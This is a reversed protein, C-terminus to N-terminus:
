ATPQVLNNVSAIYQTTAVLATVRALFDQREALLSGSPIVSKGDEWRYMRLVAGECACSSDESALIPMTLRWKVQSDAKTTNPTTVKCTVYSFGGPIGSSTEKFTSVGNQDFGAFDYTKGNLVLSM